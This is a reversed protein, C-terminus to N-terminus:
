ASGAATGVNQELMDVLAAAAASLDARRRM